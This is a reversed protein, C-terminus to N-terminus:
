GAEERFLKLAPLDAPPQPPRPDDLYDSIRTDQRYRPDIYKETVSLHSHGLRDSVKHIGARVFLQSALTKRLCHFLMNHPVEEVSAYLGAAVLIQKYQRRLAPIKYPWDGMVTPVGREALRLERLRAAVSPLFDLRQEKRQKQTHAAIVVEEREMDLSATPIKFAAGIRVGLSYLFLIMSPWWQRAPIDGVMGPMREAADLVQLLQEPLLAIPAVHNVPFKDNDPLREVLGRRHAFRWVANVVTRLGNVTTPQNGVQVFFHMAEVVRADSLDRLTAEGFPETHGRWIQFRRYTERNVCAAPDENTTTLWAVFQRPRSFNRLESRYDQCTRSRPDGPHKAPRYCAEYFELLLV